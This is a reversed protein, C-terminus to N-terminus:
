EILIKNVFQEAYAYLAQEANINLEGSLAAIDFLIRGVTEFKKAESSDEANMNELNKLIEAVKEDKNVPEVLGRKVARKYIKEARMLAPLSKATSEIYERTDAFGKEKIKINEWNALVQEATDAAGEFVEGFVHPHRLILKKCIGDCVGDIDFGGAEESIIAHTLVHSLVDGLEERLLESNNEDIAEIAEYVEEIFNNRISEHTQERDWPCGNESRLIKIIEKLDEFNYNEKKINYM